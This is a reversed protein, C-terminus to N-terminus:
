LGGELKLLVSFPYDKRNMQFTLLQAHTTFTEKVNRPVMSVPFDTDILAPTHRFINVIM